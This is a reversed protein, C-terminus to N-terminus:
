PGPGAIHTYTGGSEEAIQELIDEAERSVFSICHVPTVPGTTRNREAVFDAVAASFLGDTMFYIADPKPHLAFVRDFAGVPNTGGVATVARIERAALQKHRTSASMWRSYGGLLRPEGAYFVVFFSAHEVLGEVSEVLEGQMAALKAGVMSGSVDVIYAFRSGRAEVGFFKAAGGGAGGGVDFGEGISEGAGEMPSLNDASISELGIEPTALEMEIDALPDPEAIDEILPASEEMLAAQMETLETQTAIALEVEGPARGGDGAPRNLFIASALVALLAHILLSILLGATISRLAWRRVAEPIARWLPLGAGQPEAPLAAADAGSAIPRTEGAPKRFPNHEPM